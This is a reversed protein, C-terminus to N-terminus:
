RSKRMGALMQWLGRWRDRWRRGHTMRLMGSVIEASAPSPKQMADLHPRFTGRRETVVQPQTMQLLGEEGQTVGWGSAGRGGFPTAPHATPVIVDNISVSGTRLKAALEHGSQPHTTFVSAGLAFPCRANMEVLHETTDFPIVAFVPAFSAELCIALEPTANVIVTPPMATATPESGQLVECGKTRAEEIMRSAQQLQSPLRLSLLKASAVLPRLEGIFAEMVARQVFVRRVALCTQGHNLMIGYWASKAALPVNADALVVLADCGSLELASPILREGLRAALMRGVIDSGTFHLFDIDAEVLQPGAERTAPLLTILDPPFGSRLLLDHLLTATRPTLESPKWMVGNGATLAHLIPIVNLYIPYNWTGIVGVVGHPRHHITDHCGVLWLPRRGARRSRLIREADTLLFQCGAATPLLDTATVEEPVRQVDAEVAATLADRQEVLLARFERVPRLREAVTLSAWRLHATRCKASEVAFVTM